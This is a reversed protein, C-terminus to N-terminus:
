KTNSREYSEAIELATNYLDRDIGEDVAQRLVLLAIQAQNQGLRHIREILDDKQRESMVTEKNLKM